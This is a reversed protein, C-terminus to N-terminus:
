DHSTAALTTFEQESLYKIEVKLTIAELPQDKADRPVQVIKDVIEMGKIM